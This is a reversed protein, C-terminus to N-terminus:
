EVVLFRNLGFAQLGRETLYFFALEDIDNPAINDNPALMGGLKHIYKRDHHPAKKYRCCISDIKKGTKVDRGSDTPIILGKNPYSYGQAGTINPHNFETILKKHFSYSGKRFSNFGLDIAKQKAKGKGFTNYQIAGNVMKDLLVNDIDIDQNIGPLWLNEKSGRNKDLIKIIDDIKSLASIPAPYINGEQRVWQMLGKTVRIDRGEADTLGKSEQNFLLGLSVDSKFKLFTDNEGEYMWYMKGNSTKFEIKNTMETGTVRYTQKFIQHHGQFKIPKSILGGPQGSGEAHANSIFSLLDGTSAAAVVDITNDVPRITITHATSNGIDKKIVYGVADNKFLALMTVMPFSRGSNHNSSHLTITVDNGAGPTGSVNAIKINQYIYDKEFHHFTTETAPKMRGTQEFFDIITEEHYRNYLKHYIERDHLFTVSSVYNETLRGTVTSM